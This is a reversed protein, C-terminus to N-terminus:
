RKPQLSQNQYAKYDQQYQIAQLKTRVCSDVYRYSNEVMVDVGRANPRIGDALTLQASDLPAALLDPILLTKRSSSIIQYMNEFQKVYTYGLSPPAKIGALIIYAGSQSLKSTLTILNNYIQEVAVGREVDDAGFAVIVVDPRQEIVAAVRDQASSTTLGETSLNVVDINTYGVERMKEELLASYFQPPQLQVGAVLSDGFIVVKITNEAHASAGMCMAIFFIFFCEFIQKIRDM